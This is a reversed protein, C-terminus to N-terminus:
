KHFYEKLISKAINRALLRNGKETCHGFDGAFVDIFYDNYDTKLVADRFLEENDIFIMGDDGKFVDKLSEMSRMPYQICVLKIGRADLINKLRQFNRCTADNYYFMRINKEQLYKDSPIDIGIKEYLFLLGRHAGINRPDIKILGRFADEAEPYRGLILYISALEMYATDLRTKNLKIVHKFAEEARIYDQRCKYYWGSVTYVEENDPELQVCKNLLEEAEIYQLLYQKITALLLYARVSCSNLETAERLLEEARVYKGQKLCSVGEEVYRSYDLDSNRQSSFIKSKRNELAKLDNSTINQYGHQVKKLDKTVEIKKAIHLRLLELLKYVRFYRLFSKGNGSVVQSCIKDRQSIEDNIGLMITVMNPKYENLNNKLKDVVTDVDIAPIGKDVVSFKIGINANNLYEELFQPYQGATTSEGLCLIVFEGKQKISVRNRHEQLSLLIFGGLRLGSELLIIFLVLSFAILYIKHRLSTKPKISVKAITM